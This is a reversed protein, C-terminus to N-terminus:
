LRLKQASIISLLTATPATTLEVAHDYNLTNLYSVAVEREAVDIMGVSVEVVVVVVVM